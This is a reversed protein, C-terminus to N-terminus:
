QKLLQSMRENAQQLVASISLRRSLVSEIMDRFISRVAAEDPIPWSKAPLSQAYFPTLKESLNEPPQILDRRAPPLGTLSLYEMSTDRSTVFRIFKWAALPNKSLRSASLVAFRGYTIRTQSGSPQPFASIGFNLHPNKAEVRAVDGAYGILFATDGNAFADLSNSFSKNWTYNRRQPDAFSTYFLLAEEAPSFPRTAGDQTLQKELRETLAPENNNEARIIMGGQQFILASVIDAFYEVNLAEGLAAGSKEIDGRPSVKTLKVVADAFENWTKPPSPINASNLYDRNYFLALTDIYLPFGIIGAQTLAIPHAADVFNNKFEERSMGILDNEASPPLLPAIKNVHRKTQSDKLMFVDPGANEALANILRSEFQDEPIKKYTVSIGENGASNSFSQIIKQWTQESEFGWFELHARKVAVPDGGIRSVMYFALLIFLLAGGVFFLKRKPISGM